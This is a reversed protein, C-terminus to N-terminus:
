ADTSPEEKSQPQSSAGPTAVGPEVEVISDLQGFPNPATIPNHPDTIWQGDVVYRYPHRGTPFPICVEHAAIEPNFRMRHANPSWGNIDAALCVRVDPGAPFVFLVGRSTVRAGYLSTQEQPSLGPTAPKPEAIADAHGNQLTVETMVSTAREDSELRRRMDTNGCALKRARAALEAARSVTAAGTGQSIEVRNTVPEIPTAHESEDQDLPAGTAFDEDEAPDPAHELLWAGLATYDRAADCEPDHDIVPLGLSAAERLREDFRVIVPILWRSFRKRLEAVVDRGVVTEGRHMTPVIRYTARHGCRRLLAELTAVQREAGRLAFYGTEVPILVMSAARLANYTLLGISPSCDILCWDYEAAHARLVRLLRQERDPQDALGGRSSELGALKVTSPALDLNKSVSWLLRGAHTTPDGGTLMAEGIGSEIQRSPVALGLACHSQPDLDVLLTRQGRRALIAALNIATTTKGSGGKQNVIAVTRM